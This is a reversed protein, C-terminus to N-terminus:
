DDAVRGLPRITASDAARDAPPATVTAAVRDDLPLVMRLGHDAPAEEFGIRQYVSIAARNSPEVHLELAERDAAIAAAAIQKCLETGIGRNHFDPHVFVALEPQADDVPTYVVHGVLGDAGEAVINNGEELLMEVWEQRRHDVAPPIGQARDAAGFAAYMAALEDADAPGASRLTWRAGEADVFRPCRPPCHETGACDTADWGGSGPESADSM